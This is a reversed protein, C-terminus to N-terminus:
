SRAVKTKIECIEYPTKSIRSSIIYHYGIEELAELNESSLMAADATVTIDSLGNQACFANLVPVFTKCEARNGEFSSIFLPFGSSDCLLGLTIQPELRREKSLGPKRYEDEKQIEFYLTTVDYLILALASPKAAGLCASSLTERYGRENTRGLARHITSNSPAKLGLEGLIRITDLKSAPEIIRALVLQKFVNDGIVGFGLSDYVTGLTDFLLKSYSEEAFVKSSPEEEFLKLHTQGADKISKASALLIELETSTHASGVHKIDTVRRGHKSVVQVATAGSATKVKRIYRSM